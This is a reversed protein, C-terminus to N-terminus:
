LCRQRGLGLLPLIHDVVTLCSDVPGDRRELMAYPWGTLVADM